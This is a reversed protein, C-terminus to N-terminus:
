PKRKVDEDLSWPAGVERDEFGEAEPLSVRGFDSFSPAPAPITFTAPTTDTSPKDDKDDPSM